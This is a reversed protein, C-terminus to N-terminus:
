PQQLKSVVKKIFGDASFSEADIIPCPESANEIGM